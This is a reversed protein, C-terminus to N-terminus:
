PLVAIRDLQWVSRAFTQDTRFSADSDYPYVLWIPGKDRVTMLNGDVQFALMPAAETAETIPFDISYDNLAHLRLHQADIQLFEALRRLMVGTYVHVGTTWISATAIQETGIAQLRALDLSVEGGPYHATDLGTVTLIVAGTLPPLPVEEATAALCFMMFGAVLAFRFPRM